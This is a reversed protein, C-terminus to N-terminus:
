RDSKMAQESKRVQQESEVVGDSCDLLLSELSDCDM